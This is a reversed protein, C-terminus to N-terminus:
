VHTNKWMRCLTQVESQKLGDVWRAKPSKVKTYFLKYGARRAKEVQYRVAPISLAQGKFVMQQAVEQLTLVKQAM